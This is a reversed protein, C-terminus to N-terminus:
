KSVLWSHASRRRWPHRLRSGIAKLLLRRRAAPCTEAQGVGWRNIGTKVARRGYGSTILATIGDADLVWASGSREEVYALRALDISRIGTRTRVSLLHYNKGHRASVGRRERGLPVFWLSAILMAIGLPMLMLRGTETRGAFGIEGLAALLYVSLLSGGLRASRRATAAPIGDIRTALRVPGDTPVGLEDLLANRRLTAISPTGRTAPPQTSNAPVRDSARHPDASVPQQGTM